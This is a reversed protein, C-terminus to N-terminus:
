EGGSQLEVPEDLVSVHVLAGSENRTLLLASTSWHEGAM